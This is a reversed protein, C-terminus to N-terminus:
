YWVRATVFVISSGSKAFINAGETPRPAPRVWVCSLLLAGGLLHPLLASGRRHQRTVNTQNAGHQGDDWERGRREAWSGTRGNLLAATGPCSPDAAARPQSVRGSAM